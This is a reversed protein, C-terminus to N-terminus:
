DYFLHMEHEYELFTEKYGLDRITKRLEYQYVGHKRFMFEPHLSLWIKPHWTKLTNVAGDIVLCESGEVDISIATPPKFKEALTDIKIEPLSLNDEVELFGHDSIVPSNACEPFGHILKGHTDKNSVFGVWCYPTKLKNMDWVAKINSWVRHNPEFLVMEAGWMSCLGAMDGEEAGVYFMVDKSSLNKHISELRKKEWGKETYWEPRKARHEPLKIKWKGNLLM